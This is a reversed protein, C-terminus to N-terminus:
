VEGGVLDVVEWLGEVQMVRGIELMGCTYLVGVLNGPENENQHVGADCGSGIVGCDLDM